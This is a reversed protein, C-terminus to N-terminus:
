ASPQRKPPLNDLLQPGLALYASALVLLNSFFLLGLGSYTFRDGLANFLFASSLVVSGVLLAAEIATRWWTRPTKTLLQGALLAYCFPLYVFYHPWSTSLLFPLSAFLLLYAWSEWEPLNARMLAYVLFLNVAAILYGLLTIPRVNIEASEGGALRWVVHPFHQSNIDLPVWADAEAMAHNVDLYFRVGDRVGLAGLPLILGLLLGAALFAILFKYQRKIVFVVLLLGTYYKIWTALALMVAAAVPHGKRHLTLSLLAGATMLISVQGWKLNHLVPLSTAVLFVYLYFSIPSRRLFLRAPAAILVILLLAQLAGWLWLSTDLPLRGFPVLTLAFFPTYFYGPVPTKDWFLSRGMPYYHNTFDCFLKECHDIAIVFEDVSDWTLVYYFTVLGILLLAGLLPRLYSRGSQTGASGEAECSPDNHPLQQTM